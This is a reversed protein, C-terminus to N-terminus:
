LLVMVLVGLIACYLAFPYLPRQRVYNLLFRIAAYGALAAAAFGALLAPLSLSLAETGLLRLLQLLGTGTIIPVSLLFSFRAAEERRLGRLMAAAITAGSRSLGPAIAAAQALGVLLAEWWSLNELGRQRRGLFEGLLLLVATLLLIGGVARPSAFLKEFTEELLLGALAAPVTGLAIWWALRAQPTGLPRGQRLGQGWAQLIDLLDRWFVGLVAVLTGLHVTTDFTLLVETPLEKIWGLLHQMLVLHGSSSVPLFETVGQILGLVLAEWFAM